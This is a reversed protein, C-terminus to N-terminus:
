KNEFVAKACAALAHLQADVNGSGLISDLDPVNVTYQSGGTITFDEHLEFFYLDTVTQPKATQRGGHWGLKACRTSYIVSFEPASCMSLSSAPKVSHIGVVQEQTELRRWMARTVIDRVMPNRLDCQLHHVYARQVDVKSGKFWGVRWEPHQGKWRPTAPALLVGPQEAVPLGPCLLDPYAPILIPEM